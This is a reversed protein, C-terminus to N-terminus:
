DNSAARQMDPPIQDTMFADSDILLVDSPVKPILSSEPRPSLLLVIEDSKGTVETWDLGQAFSSGALLALPAFALLSRRLARSVNM